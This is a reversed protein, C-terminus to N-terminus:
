QLNLIVTVTTNPNVPMPQAPESRLVTYGAPTLTYSDWEINPITLEGSADTTFNQSYKYIVPNEGIKKTVGTLTFPVNGVATITEPDQGYVAARIDFNGNSNDQWVVVLYGNKNIYIDPNEQELTLTSNIRVDFGIQKVGDSNIKQMYIDSTGNRTDQWVIYFDGSRDEAIVPYEQVASGTDSNIKVDNPWIKNGQPDYKQSYIDYNGARDDQWVFYLFDDTSTTFDPNRHSFSGTDSNIKVDSAWLRSGNPDYKQAFIDDNGNRADYWAYFINERFDRKIKPRSQVATTADSNIKIEGAWVANGNTDFKQAYIDGGDNRTDMWAIYEHTSSANIVIQPFTQDASNALTDVKKSGLWLSTPTGDYKEFYIDQNGNRDDNWVAYINCNSDVEVDPNNQNNSTTIAFDPNWLSHLSVDYKQAYIRPNNNQRFDRWTFIYSGDPCVSMSPNDQDFGSADTSVIWPTPVSQRLTKIQLTSFLDIGFSIETLEGAIISAYPKTPVPNGESATCAAGAADIACTKDTSYGAKTTSISYANLGAPAGPYILRGQDNTQASINVTTTGIQANIQVSAQPVPLGGANFVLVSLTGTNEENQNRRPAVNSLATVSSTGFSGQWSVAVKVKKYDTGSLESPDVGLIGDASDDIYVIQTNITYTAGNFVLTEIQPITGPPIGSATGISSYPLNKVIELKQEALSLAQTRLKNEKVLRISYSFLALVSVILFGMILIVVLVEILTFGSLSKKIKIKRSMLATHM